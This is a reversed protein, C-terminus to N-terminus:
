NSGRLAITGLIVKTCEDQDEWRSQKGQAKRKENNPGLKYQRKIKALNAMSILNHDNFEM